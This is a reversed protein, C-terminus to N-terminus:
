QKDGFPGPKYFREGWQPTEAWQWV